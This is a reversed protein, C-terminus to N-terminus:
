GWKNRGFGRRRKGGERRGEERLDGGESEVNRRSLAEGHQNPM